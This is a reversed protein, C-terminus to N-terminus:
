EIVEIKQPDTEFKYNQNLGDKNVMFESIASVEYIGPNKIKYAYEESITAKGSFPRSKGADSIVYSNIRKGNQGKIVFEFIKNRSMITLKQETKVEFDAKITFPEDTQVKQPASIHVAFLENEEHVRSSFVSGANSEAPQNLSQCGFLSLFVILVLLMRM